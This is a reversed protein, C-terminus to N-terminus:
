PAAGSLRWKLAIMSTVASLAANGSGYASPVDNFGEIDAFIPSAAPIDARIKDVVRHHVLLPTAIRWTRSPWALYRLVIERADFQRDSRNLARQVLPDVRPTSATM